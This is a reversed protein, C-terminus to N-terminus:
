GVFKSLYEGLDQGLAQRGYAVIQVQTYGRHELEWDFDGRTLIEEKYLWQLQRLNLKTLNLLKVKSMGSEKAEPWLDKRQEASLKTLDVVKLGVHKEESDFHTYAQLHTM